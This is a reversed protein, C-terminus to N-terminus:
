PGAPVTEANRVSRGPFAGAAHQPPGRRHGADAPAPPAARAPAAAAAALPVPLAAGLPAPLAPCPPESGPLAPCLLRPARASCAPPPQPYRLLGTQSGPRDLPQIHFFASSSSPPGAPGRRNHGAGPASFHTRSPPLFPSSTSPPSHLPTRQPSLASLPSPHLSPEM